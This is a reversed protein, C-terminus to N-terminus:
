LDGFLIKNIVNVFFVIMLVVDIDVEELFCIFCILLILM